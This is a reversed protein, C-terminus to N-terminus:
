KFSFFSLFNIQASDIFSKRNARTEQEQTLFPLIFSEVTLGVINRFEYLFVSLITKKCINVHHLDVRTLHTTVNLRIQIMIDTRVLM